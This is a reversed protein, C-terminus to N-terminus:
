QQSLIYLNLTEFTARSARIEKNLRKVNLIQRVASQPFGILGVIEAATPNIPIIRLKGDEQYLNYKLVAKGPPCENIKALNTKNFAEWQPDLSDWWLDIHIQM